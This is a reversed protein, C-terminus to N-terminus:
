KEEMRPPPGKSEKRKQAIRGLQNQSSYRDNRLHSITIREECVKKADAYSISRSVMAKPLTTTNRKM